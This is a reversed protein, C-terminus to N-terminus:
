RVEFTMVFTFGRNNKNPIRTVKNLSMGCSLCAEVIEFIPFKKNFLAVRRASLNFDYYQSSDFFDAIILKGGKNILKILGALDPTAEISTLVLSMIVIDYPAKGEFKPLDSLGGDIVEWSMGSGDMNARFMKRMQESPELATWQVSQREFYHLAIARGTGSGVDLVNTREQKDVLPSIERIIQKHADLVFSTNRADYQDAILDFFEVSESPQFLRDFNTEFLAQGSISFDVVSSVIRVLELFLSNSWLKQNYQRISQLNETLYQACKTQGIYRSLVNFRFAEANTLSIFDKLDQEGKEINKVIRAVFSLLKMFALSEISPVRLNRFEKHRYSLPVSDESLMIWDIAFYAERQLLKPGFLIVENRNIKHRIVFAPRLEDENQDIHDYINDPYVQAVLQKAIAADCVLDIDATDRHAVYKRVALGGILLHPTKLFKDIKELEEFASNTTTM